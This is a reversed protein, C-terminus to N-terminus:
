NPHNNGIYPCICTMNWDGGVLFCNNKELSGEQLYAKELISADKGRQVSIKTPGLGPVNTLLPDISRRSFPLVVM